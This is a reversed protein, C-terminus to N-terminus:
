VREEGRAISLRVFSDAFSSRRRSRLCRDWLRNRSVEWDILCEYLTVGLSFVDCRRDIAPREEKPNSDGGDGDETMGAAVIQEPSMYAPTGLLIGSQTVTSSDPSDERALGFDLIVPADEKTVMINSPKIDRHILGAEHTVHLARAVREIFHLVSYIESQTSPASEDLDANEHEEDDSLELDLVWETSVSIPKRNGKAESVRKSLTDGEVFRMAIYPVDDVVGADFVTCIYPHDIKSATRAERMLRTVAQRNALLGVPLVKLAVRRGVSIQTAEYVIGMGGRGLLRVIKYDGLVRGPAFGDSSIPHREQDLARLTQLAKGLNPSLDPHAAIIRDFDVEEGANVRDSCDSVIEGVREFRRDDRHGDASDLDDSNKSGETM